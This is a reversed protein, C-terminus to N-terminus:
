LQASCALRGPKAFDTMLALGCGGAAFDIKSRYIDYAIKFTQQQRNGIIAIPSQASSSRFALCSVGPRAEIVVNPTKLNLDAGGQFIM